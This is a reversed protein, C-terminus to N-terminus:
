FRGVAERGLGGGGGLVPFRCYAGQRARRADRPADAGMQAILHVFGHGLLQNKSGCTLPSDYAQGLPTGRGTRAALRPPPTPPNVLDNFENVNTDHM